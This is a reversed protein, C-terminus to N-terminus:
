QGLLRRMQAAQQQDARSRQSANMYAQGSVEHSIPRNKKGDKKKKKKGTAPTNQHADAVGAKIRDTPDFVSSAM